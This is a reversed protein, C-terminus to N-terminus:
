VIARTQDKNFGVASLIIFGGSEPYRKYFAEWNGAKLVAGIVESSLGASGRRTALKAAFGSRRLGAFRTNQSPSDAVHVIVIVQM